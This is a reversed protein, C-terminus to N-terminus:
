SGRWNWVDSGDPLYRGIHTVEIGAEPFDPFRERPLEFRWPYGGRLKAEGPRLNWDQPDPSVVDVFYPIRRATQWGPLDGFVRM